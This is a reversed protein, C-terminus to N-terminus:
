YSFGLFRRYAISSFICFVIVAVVVVVCSVVLIIRRSKKINDFEREFKTGYRRFFLFYVNILFLAFLALWVAPKSLIVKKNLFMEICNDIGILFLSEILTVFGIAAGAKYAIDKVRSIRFIIVYGTLYVEKFFRIM